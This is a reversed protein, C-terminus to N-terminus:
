NAIIDLTADPIIYKQNSIASWENLYFQGMRNDATEKDVIVFKKHDEPYYETTCIKNKLDIIRLTGLHFIAKSHYHQVRNTILPESPINDVVKIGEMWYRGTDKDIFVVEHKPTYTSIIANVSTGYDAGIAHTKEEEYIKDLNNFIDKVKNRIASDSDTNTIIEQEPITTNNVDESYSTMQSNDIKQFQPASVKNSIINMASPDVFVGNNSENNSRVTNIANLAALPSNATSLMTAEPTPALTGTSKLIDYFLKKEKRIEDFKSINLKTKSELVKLKGSTLREELGRLGIEDELACMGSVEEVRKSINDKQYAYEHFIRDYESTYKRFDRTIDKIAAELEVRRRRDDNNSSSKELSNTVNSNNPNSRSVFDTIKWSNQTKNLNKGTNFLDLM